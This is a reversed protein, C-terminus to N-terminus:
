GFLLDRDRWHHGPAAIRKPVLMDAEDKGVLRFFAQAFGGPADSAEHLAVVRTSLVVECMYLSPIDNRWDEFLNYEPALLKKVRGSSSCSHQESLLGKQM